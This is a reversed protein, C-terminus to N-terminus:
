ITILGDISEAQRIEEPDVCITVEPTKEADLSEYAGQLMNRMEESKQIFNLLEATKMTIEKLGDPCVNEEDDPLPKGAYLHLFTRM